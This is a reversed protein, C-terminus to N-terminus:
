QPSGEVESPIVSISNTSAPITDSYDARTDRDPVDFRDREIVDRVKLNTKTKEPYSRFEIDKTVWQKNIKKFSKINMRRTLEGDSSYGEARLVVGLKEEVWLRVGDFETVQDEPAPLDLVDCKRGSAKDKGRFEGGQWWLFSLSLDLWTIDTDLIPGNLPPTPAAQLPSGELYHYEPEGPINWTISMHQLSEGFADRITYRATPTEAKWDIVMEVHYTSQKKGRKDRKIMDGKIVLPIDPLATIVNALLPNPEAAGSPITM